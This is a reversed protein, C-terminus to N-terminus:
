VEAHGSDVFVERCKALFVRVADQVINNAGKKARLVHVTRDYKGQAALQARDLFAQTGQRGDTRAWTESVNRGKGVVMHKHRKVTVDVSMRKQGSVM